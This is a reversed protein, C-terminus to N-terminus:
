EQLMYQTFQNLDPFSLGTKPFNNSDLKESYRNIWVNKINLQNTPIIDHYVSQAVHIIESAPTDFRNLAQIFNNHSPKYSKLEESTIVWDFIVDHFFHYKKLLDNDINSILALKYKGSLKRLSEITDPFVSWNPLSRVLSHLDDNSMNIKLLDAFQKLINQLVCRYSIYEKSIIAADFERFFKFIEEEEIEILYDTFLPKLSNIVGEKWDVLTGLCDFSIIKTESM